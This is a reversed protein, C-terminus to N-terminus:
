DKQDPRNLQDDPITNCFKSYLSPRNLQHETDYKMQIPGCVKEKYADTGYLRILFIHLNIVVDTVDQV